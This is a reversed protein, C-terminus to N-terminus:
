IPTHELVAFFALFYCTAWCNNRTEDLNEISLNKLNTLNIMEEKNSKFSENLNSKNHVRYHKVSYGGGGNGM